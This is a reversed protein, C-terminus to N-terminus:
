AAIPPGFAGPDRVVRRLVVGVLTIVIVPGLPLNGYCFMIAYGATFLAVLIGIEFRLRGFEIQDKALFAIPIVIVALDHTWAYPTAVLTAASLLAAKLAYRTSSRWVRWVAVTIGLTAGSQAVWALPAGGHLARVLGYVSQFNIWPIVPADTIRHLVTDNATTVLAHPFAAWPGVGFAAISVGVLIITTMAASALARWQGAAILAVPFMIGFQPKYTLCGIFVGALAPRRELALLAGGVLSARLFGTQGWIVAQVNFPSALALPIAASRRVILCVAGICGLLTIVQFSFFAAVYPLVAFPALLLSFIPPYPWPWALYSLNWRNAGAAVDAAIDAFNIGHPLAVAPGYLAHRVVIWMETFDNFIPRGASDYLWNGTKYQVVLHFAYVIAFLYGFVRLRGPALIDPPM